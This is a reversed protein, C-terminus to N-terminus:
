WLLTYVLTLVIALAIGAGIGVALGILDQKKLRFSRRFIMSFVIAGLTCIVSLTIIVGANRILGSIAIASALYFPILFFYGFKSDSVREANESKQLKASMILAIWAAIGSVAAFVFMVPAFRHDTFNIARQVVAVQRFTLYFLPSYSFYLFFDWPSGGVLNDRFDMNLAQIFAMILPVVGIYLAIFFLGDIVRNARSFIFANIGFLLVALPVAAFYATVFGSLVFNNPKIATVLFGLWFSVTFPVLVLILGILSKTLYLKQRLIPVSYLCDVQKSDTKFAFMLIPVLTCLIILGILPVHIHSSPIFYEGTTYSMLWPEFDSPIVILLYIITCFATLVILPLRNRKLEYLFYKKM